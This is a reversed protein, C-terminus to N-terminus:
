VGLALAGVSSFIMEKPISARELTQSNEKDRQRKYVFFPKFGFIEALLHLNM